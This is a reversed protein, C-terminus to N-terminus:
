QAGGLMRDIEHDLRADLVEAARAEIGESVTTSGLMSPVSPGVFEPITGSATKAGLAPKSSKTKTGLREVVATHGSGFRAVFAGPMPKQGGGRKVAARLTAKGPGGTGPQSPTTEFRSLPLASGRSHVSANLNDPSARRISMTDRVRSAQVNYEAVAGRVAESRAAEAARNIARALAKDAAGPLAALMAQAREIQQPTVTVV